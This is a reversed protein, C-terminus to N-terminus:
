EDDDETGKWSSLFQELEEKSVLPFDGIQQDPNSIMNELVVLWHSLLQQITAPEFLDRNYTLHVLPAQDDNIVHCALDFKSTELDAVESQITLGTFEYQTSEPSPLTFVAQILPTHSTKREPRLMEVLKEFPVDQHSYAGLTVERVRALVARFTPNDGLNTRLVLTNAFFGILGELEVRNRNAIPTGVVIDEQGSYRWLLVQFTALMAMFLTVDTQQALEKVSKMLEVSFAISQQAGHYSQIAPRSHDLPLEIVEPIGALQERWYALEKELVEGQLWNRQWLAFDAYQLPLPALPSPKDQVFANYLTTLERQFISMSWGDSIIHHMTALVIHNEAELKLVRLRVLPGKALDMVHQAEQKIWQQVEQERKKEPWQSLDILLFIEEEPWGPLITQVVENDNINFTTRLVEHRQIIEQWSHRLADVSLPGQLRFAGPINYFTSEPELQNLFWLRQQAFSLPLPQNRAVAVLPPTSTSQPQQSEILQALAAVTPHEFITRVLITTQFVRQMRAVVQTALLSHGGLEFFNDLVGMQPNKLVQSWIELIQKETETRPEQKTALAATHGQGGLLALDIDGTETLPLAARTVLRYNNPQTGWGSPWGRQPDEQLLGPAVYAVVEQRPTSSGLLLPLIHQNTGDLGVLVTPYEHHLVTLLSHWGQRPTITQFGQAQSFAKLQYGRSMGTEDWM